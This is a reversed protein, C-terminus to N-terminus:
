GVLWGDVIPSDRLLSGIRCTLLGMLAGDQAHVNAKLTRGEGRRGADTLGRGPGSGERTSGAANYSM